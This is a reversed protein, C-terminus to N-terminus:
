DLLETNIYIPGFIFIPIFFVIETDQEPRCRDFRNTM